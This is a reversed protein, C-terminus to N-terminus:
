IKIGKIQLWNKFEHINYKNSKKLNDERLLPQMNDLANIIKM